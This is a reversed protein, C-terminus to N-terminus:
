PKQNKETLQQNKIMYWAMIHIAQAFEGTRIMEDIEEPNYIEQELYETDDLHPEGAKKCNKAYYIFAYNDAITANSPVTILHTWDDSVYGTEESLERKAAELAEECVDESFPNGYEKGDEREIGGAPFEVTVKEIGHRFQKVCILNGEEDEAIIVVYSRRSYQYFPGIVTGDPVRYAARRFDFWQNNVIHEASVRKWVLDDNNKHEM